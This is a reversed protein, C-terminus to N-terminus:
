QSRLIRDDLSSITIVGEMFKVAQGSIFVREGDLRCSLKGGRASIQHANLEQKNLRKAWYPTLTTHASGTVPDEDVGVKPGFWRSVFDVAEGPATVIVGRLPLTKLLSFDPKLARVDSESDLVVLFDEAVYVEEPTINLAAELQQPPECVQPRRLPFDLTFTDENSSVRLEGSRTMFRLPWSTEHLEERIVWSAALTAHGCLDVETTPTFWRLHYCGSEKVFFATESLNNEAAINQMIVDPLWSELPCVAAPNGSFVENAFADIQYIPLKIPQTRM